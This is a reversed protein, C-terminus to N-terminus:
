LLLFIANGFHTLENYMASLSKPNPVHQKGTSDKRLNTLHM